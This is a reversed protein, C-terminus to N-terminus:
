QDSHIPRWWRRARLSSARGAEARRDPEDREAERADVALAELDHEEQLVQLQLGARRRHELADRDPQGPGGHHAHEGEPQMVLERVPAHEHQGPHQDATSTTITPPVASV